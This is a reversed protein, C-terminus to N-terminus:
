WCVLIPLLSVSFFLNLYPYCIVTKLYFKIKEKRKQGINMRLDSKSKFIEDGQWQTPAESSIHMM